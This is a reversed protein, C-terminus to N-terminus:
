ASLSLKELQTELRDIELLIKAVLPDQSVMRGEESDESVYTIDGEVYWEMQDLPISTEPVDIADLLQKWKKEIKLKIAIVDDIKLFDILVVNQLPIYIKRREKEVTLFPLWPNQIQQYINQAQEEQYRLVAGDVLSIQVSEIM